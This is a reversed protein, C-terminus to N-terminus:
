PSAITMVNSFSTTISYEGVSKEPKVYDFQEPVKEKGHHVLTVGTENSIVISTTSAELSRTTKKIPEVSM